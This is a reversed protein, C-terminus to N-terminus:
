TVGNRYLALSVSIPIPCLMGVGRNQAPSCQTDRSSPGAGTSSPCYPKARDRGQQYNEQGLCAWLQWGEMWRGWAQRSGRAAALAGAAHGGQSWDNGTGEDAAAAWPKVTNSGDHGRSGEGMGGDHGPNRSSGGSAAVTGPSTALPNPTVGPTKGLCGVRNPPVKPAEWPGPRSLGKTHCLQKQVKVSYLPPLHHTVFRHM